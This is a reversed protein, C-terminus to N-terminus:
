PASTRAPTPAALLVVPKRDTPVAVPLRYISIRAKQRLDKLWRAVEEDFARESYRRRM